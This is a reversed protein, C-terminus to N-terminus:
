IWFERQKAAKRRVSWPRKYAAHDLNILDRVVRLEAPLSEGFLLAMLAAQLFPDAM